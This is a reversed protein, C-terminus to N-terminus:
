HDCLDTPGIILGAIEQEIPSCEVDRGPNPQNASNWHYTNHLQHRLIHIRELGPRRTLQVSYVRYCGCFENVREDSTAGIGGGVVFIACHVFEVHAEHAIGGDSGPKRGERASMRGVRRRAPNAQALVRRRRHHILSLRFPGSRDPRRKTLAVVNGCSPADSSGASQLGGGM